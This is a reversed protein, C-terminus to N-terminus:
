PSVNEKEFLIIGDSKKAWNDSLATKFYLSRAKLISSHAKFTKINEDRGIRIEVDYFDSECLLNTLDNVLKSIHKLPLTDENFKLLKEFLENISGLSSFGNNSM